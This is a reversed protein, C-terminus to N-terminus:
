APAYRTALAQDRIGRRFLVPLCGVTGVAGVWVAAQLGLVTITAAALLSGLPIMGWLLFRQVANVRALMQAPSATQRLTLSTPGFAGEGITHVISGAVLGAPSGLGGAIPMAVIGAVSVAAATLLTWPVGLRQVLRGSLLNGIPYGAAAAGVVVGVGFADLGLVRLCYLVLSAEVMTLFPVYVTGCLIVPELQRHTFVFRLGAQVDRVLTGVGGGPTAPNGSAEATEASEPAGAGAGAELEAGAAAEPAQPAQERHRIALLTLVSTAFTAVPSVVAWVAGVARTIVGAVAPGLARAVSESVYLRANGQHLLKPDSFLSPLYSTYAVQFFVSACGAVAVLGLMVPFTLVDLGALGAVALFAAAQVSDSIIMVTRRPLRDVIAGAPLGLVLFPGFQAFPVLAAQGASAGLSLVALLPLAVVMFQAGVLSTSQGAWLLGFDRRVSQGTVNWLVGRIFCHPL